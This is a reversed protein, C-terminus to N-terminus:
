EFFPFFYPSSPMLANNYHLVVIEVFVSIDMSVAVDVLQNYLIIYYLLIDTTGM